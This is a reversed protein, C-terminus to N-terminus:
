ASLASRRRRRLLISGNQERAQRLVRRGAMPLARQGVLCASNGPEVTIGHGEQVISRQRPRGGCSRLGAAEAVEQMVESGDQVQSLSRHRIPVPPSSYRRGHVPIEADARGALVSGRHTGPTNSPHQYHAETGPPVDILTQGGWIPRKWGMMMLEASFRDTPRALLSARVGQLHDWNTDTITQQVPAALVNGRNCGYMGTPACGDNNPLPFPNFVVRDIWGSTSRETVVVRLALLDNILPLNFMANIGGNAGGGQTGSGTVNASFKYENFEPQNTILRITGGM